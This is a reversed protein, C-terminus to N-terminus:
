EKGAQKQKRAAPSYDIADIARRVSGPNQRGTLRVDPYRDLIPPHQETLMRYTEPRRQMMTRARILNTGNVATWWPSEDLLEKAFDIRAIVVTDPKGPAEAVVKGDPGIIGSGRTGYMSPCIYVRSDMARTRAVIAGALSDAKDDFYQAITCHFIVDAGSLALIRAPEPFEMDACIMIGVTGFDTRFLPYESGADLAWTEAIPMHVKRYRGATRGGRDFLIAENYIRGAHDKTMMAAIIYMKHKAAIAAIAPVAEAEIEPILAEMIPTDEGPLTESPRFGYGMVNGIGEPTAVIDCGLRGAEELLAYVNRLNEKVKPRVKSPDYNADWTDESATGRPQLVGVKAPGRKVEAMAVENNRAESCAVVSTLLILAAVAAWHWRRRLM